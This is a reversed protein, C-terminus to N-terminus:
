GDHRSAWTLRASEPNLVTRRRFTIKRRILEDGVELGQVLCIAVARFFDGLRAILNDRDEFAEGVGGSRFMRQLHILIQNVRDDFAGDGVVLWLVAAEAGGGFERAFRKEFEEQGVEGFRGLRLDFSAFRLDKGRQNVGEIGHGGASDAIVQAAPKM